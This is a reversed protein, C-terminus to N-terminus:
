QLMLAELHPIDDVVLLKVGTSQSLSVASPTFGVTTIVASFPICLHKAGSFVEQVAKNGVKGSYRKAQIAVVLKGKTAILDVGQDGSASTVETSWGFKELSSAMWHEFEYGNEPLSSPDFKAAVNEEDLRDILDFVIGYVYEESLGVQGIPVSSLFRYVESRRNDQIVAGYENKILAKRLNRSLALYNQRVEKKIIDEESLSQREPRKELRLRNELLKSELKSSIFHPGRYLERQGSSNNSVISTANDLEGNKLSSVEALKNALRDSITHKDQGVRRVM